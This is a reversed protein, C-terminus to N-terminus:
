KMAQLNGKRLKGFYWVDEGAYGSRNPRNLFAVIEAGDKLEDFTEPTLTLTLVRGTNDGSVENLFFRRGIQMRLANDKGSLPRDTKFEIQVMPLHTNGTVGAASRISAVVNGEEVENDEDSSKFKSTRGQIHSLNQIREPLSYMESGDENSVSVEAGERLVSADYVLAGVESARHFAPLPADNIWILDIGRTMMQQIDANTNGSKIILRFASEVTKKKGGIELERPEDFPVETLAYTPSDFIVKGPATQLTTILNPDIGKPKPRPNRNVRAVTYSLTAPLGFPPVAKITVMTPTPMVTAKGPSSSSETPSLPFEFAGSLFASVRKSYLVRNDSDFFTLNFVSGNDRGNSWRLDLAISQCNAFSLPIDFTEGVRSFSHSGSSDPAPNPCEQAHAGDLSMLCVAVCAVIRFFIATVSLSHRTM